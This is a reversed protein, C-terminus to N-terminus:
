NLTIPAYYPQGGIDPKKGVTMSTILADYAELIEKTTNNLYGINQALSTEYKIESERLHELSEKNSLVSRLDLTKPQRFDRNYNTGSRDMTRVLKQLEVITRLSRLLENIVMEVNELECIKKEIAKKESHKIDLGSRELDAFLDFLKQKMSTFVFSQRSSTGGGTMNIMSGPGGVMSGTTSLQGNSYPGIFNMNTPSVPFARIERVMFHSDYMKGMPTNILPNEYYKRGLAQMYKNDEVVTSSGQTLYNAPITLNENLIAPNSRVFAIVGQLYNQLDKNGNIARQVDHPLSPLVTEAWDKYPQPESVHSKYIPNYIAPGKGIKFVYLIQKAISPPMEQLERQSVKFMDKGKLRNLCDALNGPSSTLCNAVFYECNQPQAGKGLISGACGQELDFGTEDCPIRRGNEGVKFLEKTNEDRMWKNQTSIDFMEEFTKEENDDNSYGMDGQCQSNILAKIIVGAKLAVTKENTYGIPIPFNRYKQEGYYASLYLDRLTGSSLQSHPIKQLDSPDGGYMNGNSPVSISLSTGGNKTYYLDGIKGVPLNPLTQSFVTKGGVTEKKFNIRCNQKNYEELPVVEGELPVTKNCVVNFFAGYFKRVDPSL